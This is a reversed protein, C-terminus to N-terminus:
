KLQLGWDFLYLFTFYISKPSLCLIAAVYFERSHSLRKYLQRLICLFHCLKLLKLFLFTKKKRVPVAICNAEQQVYNRMCNMCIFLCNKTRNVNSTNMVLIMPITKMEMHCQVDHVDREFKKKKEKRTKKSPWESLKSDRRSQVKLIIVDRSQLTCLM